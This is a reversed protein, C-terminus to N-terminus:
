FGVQLPGLLKCKYLELDQYLNYTSSEENYTVVSSQIDHGKSRSVVNWIVPGIGGAASTISASVHVVNM